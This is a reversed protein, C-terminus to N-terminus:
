KTDCVVEDFYREDNSSYVWKILRLGIWNLLLIDTLYCQLTECTCIWVHAHAHANEFIFSTILESKIGRQKTALCKLHREAISYWM